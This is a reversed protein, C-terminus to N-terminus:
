NWKFQGMGARLAPLSGGKTMPSFNEVPGFGLCFTKGNKVPKGRLAACSIQSFIELAL